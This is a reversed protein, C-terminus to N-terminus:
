RTKYSHVCACFCMDFLQELARKGLSTDGGSGAKFSAVFPDNDWDWGPVALVSARLSRKTEMADHWFNSSIIMTM